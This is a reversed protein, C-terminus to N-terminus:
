SGTLKPEPDLHDQVHYQYDQRVQGGAEQTVCQEPLVEVQQQWRHHHEAGCQAEPDGLVADKGLSAVEEVPSAM